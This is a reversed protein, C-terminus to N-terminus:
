IGADLIKSGRQVFKYVSHFFSLVSCIFLDYVLSSLPEIVTERFHNRKIELQESFHDFSENYEIEQFKAKEPTSKQPISELFEKLFLELKALDHQLRYFLFLIANFYPLFLYFRKLIYFNTFCEFNMDQYNYRKYEITWIMRHKEIAKSLKRKRSFEAIMSFNKSHVESSVKAEFLPNPLDTDKEITLQGKKIHSFSDESALGSKGIRGFGKCYKELTDRVASGDQLRKALSTVRSQNLSM